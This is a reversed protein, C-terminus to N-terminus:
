KAVIRLSPPGLTGIWHQNYLDFLARLQGTRGAASFGGLETINQGVFAEVSTLALRQRLSSQIEKDLEDKWGNIRHARVLLWVECSAQELITRVQEIHKDDPPGLAVEIATDQVQFDARREDEDRQNFQRIPVVQTPFRLNLKAGVLYQAVAGAKDRQDAQNLVDAIVQEATRGELRVEFPDTESIVRLHEAIHAQFTELLGADIKGQKGPVLLDLLPQGWAPLNSSRRGSNKNVPSLNYRAMASTALSEHSVVSAGGKVTHNSLDASPDSRLRELLTLAAQLRGPM